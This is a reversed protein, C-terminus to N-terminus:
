FCDALPKAHSNRDGNEQHRGTHSHDYRTENVILRKGSKGVLIWRVFHLLLPEKVLAYGLPNHQSTQGQQTNSAKPFGKLPCSVNPFSALLNSTSMIALTRETGAYGVHPVM